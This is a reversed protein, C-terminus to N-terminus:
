RTRLNMSREETKTDQEGPKIVSGNYYGSVEVETIEHPMIISGVRNEPTKLTIAYVTGLQLPDTEMINGDFYVM